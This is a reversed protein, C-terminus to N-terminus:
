KGAMGTEVLFRDLGPQDFSIATVKGSMKAKGTPFLELM